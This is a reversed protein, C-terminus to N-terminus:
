SVTYTGVSIESNRGYNFAYIILLYEQASQAAFLYGDESVERIITVWSQDAATKLIVWHTSNAPCVLLEVHIEGDAAGPGSEPTVGVTFTVNGTIAGGVTYSAGPPDNGRLIGLNATGVGSAAGTVTLTTLYGGPIAWFSNGPGPLVVNLNLTGPSQGSATSTHNGTWGTGNGSFVVVNALSEWGEPWTVTNMPPGAVSWAYSYPATGGTANGTLTLLGSALNGANYAIGAAPTSPAMPGGVVGARVAAYIFSSSPM